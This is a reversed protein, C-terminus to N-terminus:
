PSGACEVSLRVFGLYTQICSVWTIGVCRNTLYGVVEFYQTAQKRTKTGPAYWEGAALQVALLRLPTDYRSM